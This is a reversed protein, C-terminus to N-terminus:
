YDNKEKKQYASYQNENKDTVVLKIEIMSTEISFKESTSSCVIPFDNLRISGDFDQYASLELFHWKQNIGVILSMKEMVVAKIEEM